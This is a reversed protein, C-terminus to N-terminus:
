LYKSMLAFVCVQDRRLGCLVLLGRADLATSGEKSEKVASTISSALRALASALMNAVVVDFTTCMGDTLYVGRTGTTVQM